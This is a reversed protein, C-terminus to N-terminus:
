DQTADIGENHECCEDVNKADLAMRAAKVMETASVIGEALVDTADVSMRTMSAKKLQDYTAFSVPSRPQDFLGGGGQQQQGQGPGANSQQEMAQQALPKHELQFEEARGFNLMVLPEFVQETLDNFITVVWSDLSAYFGAMTVRRGAWSGTQDDDNVVEMGDTIEADLDKPYQLIHQPNNPISARTLPWKENGNEDRDSPRTTVGGAAIQEVLQRAIHQNPVPENFGDIITEGEPYGLDVGGYADKHMFLRRIDLAAGNFWKDAWPSYAGLLISTGYMEGDEANHNHFWTYPMQLDVYGVDQVRSIRTGVLQGKRRLQVCDMAARPEMRHIEITNYKTRKLTIEGSSWGWVQSRLIFPLYNRWIRQIQRYIFAGVEPRSAQVGKIFQDNETYGIEAGCIPAMRKALNKRVCPDFLMARITSFSFPQLDRPQQFWVHPIPSYGGTRLPTSVPKAAATRQAPRNQRTTIITNSPM